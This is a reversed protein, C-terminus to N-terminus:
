KRFILVMMAVVVAGAILHAALAFSFWAVWNV